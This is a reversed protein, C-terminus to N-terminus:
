TVPKQIINLKEETETIGIRDKYHKLLAQYKLRKTEKLYQRNTYSFYNGNDDMM